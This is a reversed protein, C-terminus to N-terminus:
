MVARGSPPAGNMSRVMAEVTFSALLRGAEDHVRCESHTMGDGAFTSHHHYLMWEDVRVDRHIALSIANVGTTISRHAQDLGIGEHPRLAAALPMFGTIQTLLAVNLAPDDPADRFRIWADLRPPGTPADSRLTYANDVIRVERGSLSLDLPTSEHPRPVDPASVEHRVVDRSTADLLVTAVACTRGAQTIRPAFVTFTRGNAVEGLDILVPEITTAVRAFVMSASVVRRDPTHRAAAVLTQALLQSGEIVPRQEHHRAHGVYRGDADPRVDLLACLDTVDESRPENEM